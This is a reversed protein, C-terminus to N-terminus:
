FPDTRRESPSEGWGRGSGGQSAKRPEQPAKKTDGGRVGPGKQRDPCPARSRPYCMPRICLHVTCARYYASHVYVLPVYYRLVRVMPHWLPVTPCRVARLRGVTECAAVAPNCVALPEDGLIATVRGIPSLVTM